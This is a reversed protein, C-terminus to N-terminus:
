ILFYNLLYTSGFFTVHAFVFAAMASLVLTLIVTLVAIWLSNGMQRWYRESVIIDGYNQWQWETPLGFPNGRLDGLTKFGGLAASILPVVILSAVLLLSVYLYAQTAAAPRQGGDTSVRDAADTM